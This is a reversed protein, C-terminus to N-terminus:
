ACRSKLVVLAITAALLVVISTIERVPLGPRRRM